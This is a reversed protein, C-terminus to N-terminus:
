GLLKLRNSLLVFADHVKGGNVSFGKACM